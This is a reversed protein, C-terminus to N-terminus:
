KKQAKLKRHVEDVLAGPSMGLKDAFHLIGKLCVQNKGLELKSVYSKDMSKDTGELDVQKLDREIRLERLVQGFALEPTLKDTKTAKLIKLPRAM